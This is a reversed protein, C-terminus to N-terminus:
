KDIYSAVFYAISIVTYLFCLLFIWLLTKVWGNSLWVGENRSMMNSMDYFHRTLIDKNEKRHDELLRQKLDFGNAFVVNPTCHYSFSNHILSIPIEGRQNQIVLICFSVTAISM